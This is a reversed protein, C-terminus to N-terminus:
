KAKDPGNLWLDTAPHPRDPYMEQIKEALAMTTPYRNKNRSLAALASTVASYDFGHEAVFLATIDNLAAHLREIDREQAVLLAYMAEMDRRADELSTSAQQMLDDPSKM